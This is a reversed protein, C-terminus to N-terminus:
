DEYTTEEEITLSAARSEESLLTLPDVAEGKVTMEFHLHPAEGAETSASEGVRGIIDGAKVAKGASLSTVSEPDLNRYVTMTDNGHDISVCMGFSDDEFVEAVRGDAAAAVSTGVAATIDIGAHTRWDGMTVSLSLNETDHRKSVTGRLPCLYVTPKVVPAPTDPEKVDDSPLDTRSDDPTPNPLNGEEPARNAVSVIGVILATVCLVGLISLYLIRNAKLSFQKKEM